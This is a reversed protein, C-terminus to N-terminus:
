GFEVSKKSTLTLERSRECRQALDQVVEYAYEKPALEMTMFLQPYEHWDTLQAMSEGVRSRSLGEKPADPCAQQAVEELEVCYSAYNGVKGFIRESEDAYYIDNETLKAKLTSSTLEFSGEKVTQPM